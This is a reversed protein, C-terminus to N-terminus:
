KIVLSIGAVMLIVRDAIAAIRQNTYGVLDRYMRAMSNEPVIGLGVENSVIIIPCEVRSLSEILATVQNKIVQEDMNNCMLNSMWLTMCDILIGGKPVPLQLISQDIDIPCEITHWNPGREEQHHEIRQQMENDLPECTAIFFKPDHWNQNAINLAYRSKGSRCGGLVFQISKM